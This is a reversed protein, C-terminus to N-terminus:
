RFRTMLRLVRLLKQIKLKQSLRIRAHGLRQVSPVIPDAHDNQKGVPAANPGDERGVQEDVFSYIDEQDMNVAKSIGPFQNFGAAHDFYPARYASSELILAQVRFSFLQHARVSKSMESGDYSTFGLLPRSHRSFVAM